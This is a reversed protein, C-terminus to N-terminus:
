RAAERRNVAAELVPQALLDAVRANGHVTLHAGDFALRGDRLDIADGLDVLRVERREAYRDRLMATVARQQSLHRERGGPGTLYPQTVFVVAQGNLLALDVAVAVSECYMRWPPACGGGPTHAAPPAGDAGLRAMQRELSDSISAAAELAGSAARAALAPQFVTPQGAPYANNIGGARLAMAKERLYLPLIPMYGTARFLPSTHRFVQSNGGNADGMLDNYGEYLVVIDPQLYAFDQLTFRFSYAGENNYALNVVSFPFRGDAANLRGELQAPFAENWRVGYGFATSGGLVVVRIEDPRKSAAVPGRYGWM